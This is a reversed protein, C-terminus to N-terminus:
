GLGECAAVLTALGPAQYGDDNAILIRMKRNYPTTGSALRRPERSRIM